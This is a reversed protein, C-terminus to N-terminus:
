KPPLYYNFLNGQISFVYVTYVGTDVSEIYVAVGSINADIKVGTSFICTYTACAFMYMHIDCVTVSFAHNKMEEFFHSTCQALGLIIKYTQCFVTIFDSM